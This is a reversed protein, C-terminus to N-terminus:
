PEGVEELGGGAGRGGGAAGGAWWPAAGAGGWGGGAGGMVFAGEQVGNRGCRHPRRRGDSFFHGSTFVIKPKRHRVSRSGLVTSRCSGLPRARTQRTM